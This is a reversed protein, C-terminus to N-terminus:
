SRMRDSVVDIAASIQDPLRPAMVRDLPFLRLAPGGVFVRASVRAELLHRAAEALMPASTPAIGSLCVSDPRTAKVAAVLAEAPVDAGLFVVRVGRQRLLLWFATAGLDHWEDEPCAVLVLPRDASPEELAAVAALMERRLLQSAFHEVALSVEGREWLEGILGMAPMLVHEVTEAWDLSGSADRIAAVCAIEDFSRAAEAIAAVRPDPETAAPRQPAPPEENRIAEAAHAASLGGETLAAMRRLVQIDDESYTRRGNSDREPTPVGYRREWTRIRWPSIGTARGAAQVSYRMGTM